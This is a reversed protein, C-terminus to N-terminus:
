RISKITVIEIEANFNKLTIRDLQFRKLCKAVRTLANRRRVLLSSYTQNQAPTLIFRTMPDVSPIWIPEIELRCPRVWRDRYCQIYKSMWVMMTSSWGFWVYRQRDHRRDLESRVRAEAASSTIYCFYRPPRLVINPSASWSIGVKSILWRDNLKFDHIMWLVYRLLTGDKASESHIDINLAPNQSVM